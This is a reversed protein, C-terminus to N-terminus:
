ATLVSLMPVGVHAALVPARRPEGDSFFQRLKVSLFFFFIYFLYIFLAGTTAEADLIFRRWCLLTNFHFFFLSHSPWRHVESPFFCLFYHPKSFLPLLVLSPMGCCRINGGSSDGADADTTEYRRKCITAATTHTKQTDAAHRSPHAAIARQRGRRRWILGDM